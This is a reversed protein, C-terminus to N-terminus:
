QNLLQTEATITIVLDKKRRPISDVLLLVGTWALKVQSLRQKAVETNWVTRSNTHNLGTWPRMATSIVKAKRSTILYLPVKALHTEQSRTTLSHVTHFQSQSIQFSLHRRQERQRKTWVISLGDTTESQSFEQSTVDMSESQQHSSNLILREMSATEKHM